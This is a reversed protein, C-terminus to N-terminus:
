GVVLEEKARETIAQFIGRQVLGAEAVDSRRV